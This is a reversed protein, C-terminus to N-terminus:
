VTGDPGQGNFRSIDAISIFINEAKKCSAACIRPPNMIFVFVTFLNDKFNIETSRNIKIYLLFIIFTPQKLLIFRASIINSFHTDVAYVLDNIYLSHPLFICDPPM